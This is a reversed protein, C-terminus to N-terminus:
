EKIALFAPRTHRGVLNKLGSPEGYTGLMRFGAASIMRSVAAPTFCHPHAEVLLTGKHTRRTINDFRWRGLASRCDVGVLLHGGARLARRACALIAMPDRVHDLVNYSVVTDFADTFSLSEGPIQVYEGESALSEFWQVFPDAWTEAGVRTDRVSLQPLPDTKVLRRIRSKHASFSVASLALPGCGIELVDKGDLLRHLTANDLLSLFDPLSAFIRFAEPLTMGRWYGLESDQAATWRERTVSMSM